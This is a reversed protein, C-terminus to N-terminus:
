AQGIAWAPWNTSDTVTFEFRDSTSAAGKSDIAKVFWRHSGPKLPSDPAFSMVPVPTAPIEGVRADDIFVEYRSADTSSQWFLLPKAV